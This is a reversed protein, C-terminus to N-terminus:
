KPCISCYIEKIADDKLPQIGRKNKSFFECFDEKSLESLRNLTKLYNQRSFNSEDYFSIQLFYSLFAPSLSEDSLRSKMLDVAMSFQDQLTFYKAIDIVEKESLNARKQIELIASLSKKREAFDSKEYYYDAALLNYFLEM